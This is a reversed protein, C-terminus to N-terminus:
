SVLDIKAEVAQESNPFYKIIHSKVRLMNDLDGNVRYLQGLILYNRADWPNINTIQDRRQIARKIDGNLYYNTALYEQAIENRPDKAIIEELEFMGDQILGMEILLMAIERKYEDNMLPLSFIKNSHEKLLPALQKNDPNYFARAQYVLSEGRLIFAGFVIVVMVFLSSFLPQKIPISLKNDIQIRNGPEVIDVKTKVYLGVLAGSLLWGLVSAGPSDISVYSQAQYVLWAAFLTSIFIRNSAKSKKIALISIIFIYVIIALYIVGVFIGATAFFQIPVNHANNSTIAFGYKLPYELDRYERFYSGYRDLGVGFWPNSQFMELGAKFYYGRVTVSSKYLLSSMPGIQLIGLVALTGAAGIFLTFLRGIFARVSYLYVATTFGFGIFISLLGQRADTLYITYVLLLTVVSGFIRVFKNFQHNLCSGYTITAVIAMIAASFNPNGATTIVSNYPNNWQIFDKGLSQMVGYISLISGITLAFNLFKSATGFNVVLAAATSIVVLSFYQLFGNLRGPVGIISTHLNDSMVTSLSLFIVFFSMLCLWVKIPKASYNSKPFSFLLYGILWAATILLTVFKIANIPDRLNPTISLIIVASGLYLIKLVAVEYLPKDLNKKLSM